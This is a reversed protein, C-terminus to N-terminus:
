GADVTIAREPCQSAAQRVLVVSAEPVPGATAESCGDATLSFIEPCTVVCAGHGACREQDVSARM